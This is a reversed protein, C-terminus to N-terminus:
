DPPTSQGFYWLMFLVAVIVVLATIAIRTGDDSVIKRRTM